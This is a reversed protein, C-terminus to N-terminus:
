KFVLERLLLLWLTLLKFAAALLVLPRLALTVLKLLKLLPLKALVLTWEADAALEVKMEADFMVAAEDGLGVIAEGLGM